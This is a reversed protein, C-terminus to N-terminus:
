TTNLILYLIQKQKVSLIDDIIKKTILKKDQIKNLIILLVDNYAEKIYDTTISNINLLISSFDSINIEDCISYFLLQFLNSNFSITCSKKCKLDKIMNLFALIDVLFVLGFGPDREMVINLTIDRNQYNYIYNKINFYERLFEIKKNEIGFVFVCLLKVDISLLINEKDIITFYKFVSKNQNPTAKEEAVVNNLLEKKYLKKFKMLSNYDKITIDNTEIFDNIGEIILEYKNFFDEDTYNNVGSDLAALEAIM